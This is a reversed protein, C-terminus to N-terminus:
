LQPFDFRGQSGDRDAEDWSLIGRPHPTGAQDGIHQDLIDFRIGFFDDIFRVGALKELVFVDHFHIIRRIIDAAIGQHFHDLVGRPNIENMVGDLGLPQRDLRPPAAELRIELDESGDPGRFPFVDKLKFLLDGQGEILILDFVDVAPGVADL